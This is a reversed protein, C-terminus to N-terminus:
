GDGQQEPHDDQKQKRRRQLLGQVAYIIGTATYGLFFLFLTLPPRLALLIFVLVVFLLKLFPIRGGINIDKFSPYRVTSVMLAAVSIVSLMNAVILWSIEGSQIDMTSYQLWIFSSILCAAAPSPMGQFFRKDLNGAQTNFRALRLAAAAMYLFASANGITGLASLSWSYALIAPAMGFSVIDSFSDYEKGFDSQANILRAVRGDLTDLVAAIFILIIAMHYQGSVASLISHFGAFLNGTTLLNPLLYIGRGIRKPAIKSNKDAM